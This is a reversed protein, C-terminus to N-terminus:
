LAARVERHAHDFVDVSTERANSACARDVLVGGNTKRKGATNGPEKREGSSTCLDKKVDMKLL